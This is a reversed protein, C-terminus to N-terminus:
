RVKKPPPRNDWGFPGCGMGIMVLLGGCIAVDRSFIEFEARRLVPDTIHWYDHLVVAGVMTMAFLLVAGHRTHYGVILSYTGMVMLVFAVVLVLPPMPVHKAGLQAVMHSWNVVINFAASGYFWSLALRGLLPSITESFSM